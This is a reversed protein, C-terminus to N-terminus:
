GKKLLKREVEEAEAEAEPNPRPANAKPEKDLFQALERLHSGPMVSVGQNLKQEAYFQIKDAVYSRPLVSVRQNLKQKQQTSNKSKM